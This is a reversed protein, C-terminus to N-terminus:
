ISAKNFDVCVYSQSFAKVYNREVFNFCIVNVYSSAVIYTVIITAIYCEIYGTGIILYSM